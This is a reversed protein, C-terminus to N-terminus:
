KEVEDKKLSALQRARNDAIQEGQLTAVENAIARAGPYNHQIIAITIQNMRYQKFAQERAAQNGTAKASLWNQYNQHYASLNQLLLNAIIELQYKEPLSTDAKPEGKEDLLEPLLTDIEEGDTMLGKILEGVTKNEM